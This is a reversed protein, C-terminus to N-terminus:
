EPQQTLELNTRPRSLHSYIDSGRRKKLEEQSGQSSFPLQQAKGVNMKGKITMKNTEKRLIIIM